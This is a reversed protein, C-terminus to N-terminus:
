DGSLAFASRAPRRPLRAAARASASVAELGALVRPVAILSPVLSVMAYAIATGWALGPLGFKSVLIVSLVLKAGAMLPALIVQLRIVRAGNFFVGVANGFASVILWAGLGALLGRSPTVLPGAWMKVIWGGTLFLVVAAAGGGALSLRMSRFLVRKTWARDGRAISEGYAPWLPTLAFGLLMSPVSFLRAPVAYQAVADLGIMHAIILNDSCYAAATVVQLIFFLLGLRLLGEVARARVYRFRPRLWPRRVGFLVLGNLANAAVPAGCIALVLWPLGGQFRIVLLLGILGAVRGAVDWLSNVFGEQYGLQTKPVIGLPLGALLCAMLVAMSPGAEEITRRSSINFVERWSVVPYIAAFACALLVAVASLMALASSVYRRAADRDNRGNAESIANLLGNGLGLDAFGLIGVFSSIAMWLGYREAGLYGLTLPVSVLLTLVFIGQGAISSLTTLAIRQYRERSRGEPTAVDNRRWWRTWAARAVGSENEGAVGNSVQQLMHATETRLVM